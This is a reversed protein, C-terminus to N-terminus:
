FKFNQLEFNNVQFNSPKTLENLTVPRKRYGMFADSFWIYIKPSLFSVLQM